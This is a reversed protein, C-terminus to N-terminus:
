LLQANARQDAATKGPDKVIVALTVPHQQDGQFLRLHLPDPLKHTLRFRSPDANIQLRLLNTQRIATHDIELDIGQAFSRQQQPQIRDAAGQLAAFLDM